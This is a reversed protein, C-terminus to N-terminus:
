FARIGYTARIWDMDAKVVASTEPSTRRTYIQVANLKRWVALSGFRRVAAALSSRRAGVSLSKIGAYGFQALEGHRLPGIGGPGGKYGKGAAGVDRICAAPVLTHKGKRTYRMYPARMIYGTPCVRVGRRTKAVGRMRRSMRRRTNPKPGARPSQKRICRGFIRRGARTYTKRYTKGRPCKRTAAAM